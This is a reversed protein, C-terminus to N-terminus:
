DKVEEAGEESVGSLRMCTKAIALLASVGKHEMMAVDSEEPFMRKGDDDVICCCAMKALM